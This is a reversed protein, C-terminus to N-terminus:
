ARKRPKKPSPGGGGGEDAPGRVVLDRVVVTGPAVAVDLASTLLVDEGLTVTLRLRPSTEPLKQEKPNALREARLLYYGRGDITSRDLVTDRGAVLAVWPRGKVPKEFLVRGHVVFGGDPDVAPTTTRATEAALGRAIEGHIAVRQAAGLAEPSREGYKAALRAHELKLTRGKAM